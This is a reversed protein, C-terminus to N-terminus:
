SLEGGYRIQISHHRIPRFSGNPHVPLYFANFGAQVAIALCIPIALVSLVWGFAVFLGARSRFIRVMKIVCGFHHDTPDYSVVIVISNIVIRKHPGRLSRLMGELLDAVAVARTARKDNHKM